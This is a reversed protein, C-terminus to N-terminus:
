FLHNKQDLANAPLPAVKLLAAINDALTALPARPSRVTAFISLDRMRKM